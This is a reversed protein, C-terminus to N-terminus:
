VLQVAEAITSSAAGIDIGRERQEDCFALFAVVQRVVEACDMRFGYRSATNFQAPHRFGEGTPAMFAHPQGRLACIGSQCRNIWNICFVGTGRPAFLSNHSASSYESVMYEASSYIHLQEKLSLDEPYLVTFGLDTMAKEVEEENSISHWAGGPHRRRSLYIRTPPTPSPVNPGVVHSLLDEIAANMEPHFNYNTMMMSPLIFYPARVRQQKSNYYIIESEDFYLSVFDRVWKSWDNPVAIPFARGFTRLKALQHLRPLMELLFHGYILNPHLALGVPRDIEIIEANPDLLSGMWIEPLGLDDPKVASNIYGPQIMDNVFIRGHQQLLGAAGLEHGPLAYVEAAPATPRELHSDLIWSPLETAKFLPAPQGSLMPLNLRLRHPGPLAGLDSLSDTEQFDAVRNPGCYAVPVAASRRLTGVTAFPRRRPTVTSPLPPAPFASVADALPDPQGRLISWADQKGQLTTPVGELAPEAAVAVTKNKGFLLSLLSKM